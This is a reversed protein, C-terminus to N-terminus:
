ASPSPRGAAGPSATPRTRDRAGAPEDPQFGGSRTLLPHGSLAPISGTPAPDAPTTPPPMGTRFPNVTNSSLPENRSANNSNKMNKAQNMHRHHIRPSRKRLRSRPPTAFVNQAKNTITSGM